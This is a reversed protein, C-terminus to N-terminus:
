ARRRAVDLVVAAPAYAKGFLGSCVTRRYGVQSSGEERAQTWHPLGTGEVVRAM